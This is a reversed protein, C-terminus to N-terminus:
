TRLLSIGIGSSGVLEERVAVSVNEREPSRENGSAGFQNWHM